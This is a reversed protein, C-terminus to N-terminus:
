IALRRRLQSGAMNLVGQRHEASISTFLAMAYYSLAMSTGAAILEVWTRGPLVTTKLLFGLAAIPLATLTTPGYISWLFSPLSYGNQRCFLWAPLLARSLVLVVLGCWAAGVIGYRPIAWSLATIYVIVEVTLGYAYERHKGQGILTAVTNFMGAMTITVMVTILPLVPASKAAFDPAVLRSLLEQGFLILFVSVPVFLLYCYRNILVTFNQLKDSKGHEEMEAVKSATVTGVRPVIDGVYMLLRFPLSFFGVSAASSFYGILVLPSQNSILIANSVLFSSFSYGMMSRLTAVNARGVRIRLQPFVRMVNWVNWIRELLQTVLALLGLEVLGYGLYLLLVSGAMRLVLSTVYAYNSLDFRQFAELMGSFLSSFLGIAVSVGVIMALSVSDAAFEDPVKFIAPFRPSFFATFAIILIGLCGFYVAATSLLDNLAEYDGRARYRASYNVISARFGLDFLRLYDLTSFVLAWIGYRTSGLQRIIYPQLFLGAGITAIAGFWNWLVNTIFGRGGSNRPAKGPEDAAATASPTASM